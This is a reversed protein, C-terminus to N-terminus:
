SASETTDHVTDGDENIVVHEHGSGDRNAIIFDSAPEGTKSDRGAVKTHVDDDKSQTKYQSLVRVEKRHLHRGRAPSQRPYTCPAFWISQWSALGLM